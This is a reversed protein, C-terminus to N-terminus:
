HLPVFLRIKPKCVQKKTAAFSDTYHIFALTTVKFHITQIM